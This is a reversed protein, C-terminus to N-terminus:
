LVEDELVGIATEVKELFVIFEPDTLRIKLMELIERETFDGLEREIITPRRTIQSLVAPLLNISAISNNPTPEQLQGIQSHPTNNGSQSLRQSHARHQQSLSLEDRFSTSGMNAANVLSPHSHNQLVAQQTHIMPPTTTTYPYRSSKLSNSYTPIKTRFSTRTASRIVQGTEYSSPSMMSNHARMNTNIAYSPAPNEYTQSQEAYDFSHTSNTVLLSPQDNNLYNHNTAQNHNLQIKVYVGLNKFAELILEFEQLAYITIQFRKEQSKFGISPFKAFISVNQNRHLILLDELVTNHKVWILKLLIDENNLRILSLAIDNRTHFHQWEPSENNLYSYKRVNFTSM